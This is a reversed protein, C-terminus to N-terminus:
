AFACTRARATPPCRQAWAAAAAATVPLPLVGAALLGCTSAWPRVLPVQCVQLALAQEVVRSHPLAAAAAAATPGHLETNSAAKRNGCAVRLRATACGAAGQLIRQMRHASRTDRTHSKRLRM